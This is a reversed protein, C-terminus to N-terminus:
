MLTDFDVKRLGVPIKFMNKDVSGKFSNIIFVSINDGDIVEWRKWEEKENFYYKVTKGDSTKYEECTYTVKGDEVKTSKVYTSKATLDGSPSSIDESTESDVESYMGFMPIVLYYKGKESFVRASIKLSGMAMELSASYEEGNICMVMPMEVDQAIITTDITYKKSKIVPDIVKSKLGTKGTKDGEELLDEKDSSELSGTLGGSSSNSGSGSGTTSNTMEELVKNFDIQTTVLSGDKNTINEGNKDTAYVEFDVEAESSDGAKTTTTTTVKQGNEETVLEGAEDTVYEQTNGQADVYTYDDLATDDKVMSCACFSVAIM